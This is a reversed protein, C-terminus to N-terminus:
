FNYQLVFYIGAGIGGSVPLTIIWALIIHKLISIDVYDKQKGKKHKLYQRYLGIGFIGGIAIHTSSVPLGLQSAVLVTIAASLAVSFARIQNLKTIESGVTQILKKGFIMLGTAIGIGGICLIWLPIGVSGINLSNNQSLDYIAAVPGIANAVDNAGHAFSLLAVGCILPINFLSNIFSKSNKLLSSHRELYWGISVCVLAGLICGGLLAISPPIFIIQKLGKLLIYSTFVGSMIGVYIPVWIKAAESRDDKKMIHYEISHLFFIAIIGGLIPSIIWSSVIELIKSWLISGAGGSALAAGVMGGIISHTASVPARLFTAINIWVSAGLLTAMMIYIIKQPDEIYRTDVIGGKITQVVDGGALIAGGAEFIGAIIIASGLTLAKSGVAPGMNNAVDNAGLNMAMYLGLLIAIMILINESGGQFFYVYLIIGLIMCALFTYSFGPLTKSNKKFM